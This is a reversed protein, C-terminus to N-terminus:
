VGLIKKLVKKEEQLIDLWEADTGKSQLFLTKKILNHHLDMFLEPCNKLIDAMTQAQQETLKSILLDWYKIESQNIGFDIVIQKLAPKSSFNQEM